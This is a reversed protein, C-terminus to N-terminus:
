VYILPMAFVSSVEKRLAEVVSSSESKEIRLRELATSAEVLKEEAYIKSKELEDVLSSKAQFNTLSSDLLTKLSQTESELAVM